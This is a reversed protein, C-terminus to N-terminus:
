DQAPAKHSKRYSRPSQGTWRKFSRAFGTPDSYGLFTAIQAITQDTATLAEIAAERKLESIVARLSTGQATLKRELTRKKWQCIAAVEEATPFTKGMATPFTKGMYPKVAQQVAEALTVAPTGHGTEQGSRRIFDPRDFPESLWAAPFRISYGMSNGRLAPVGYFVPPLVAPDCLTVMVDHPNWLAGVSRRILSVWLGVMFADNQAPLISPEFVRQESLTAMSGEVGLRQVASTAHDQASGIFRTLFDGVTAADRSAEILPPWSTVELTEGVRALLNPDNAAAAANELFQHIVLVHIFTGPTEVAERTLGVGQLVRDSDVGREALASLVPKALSLRVLPLSSPGAKQSDTM